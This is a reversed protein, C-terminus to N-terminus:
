GRRSGVGGLSQAAPQQLSETMHTLLEDVAKAKIRSEAVCRVAYIVTTHDRGDFFAAIAPYSMGAVERCLYMAVQRPHSYYRERRRGILEGREVGFHGNVCALIDDPTPRTM